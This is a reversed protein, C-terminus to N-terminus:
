ADPVGPLDEVSPVCPVGAIDQRTPHVAWLQGPFGLKRCQQIVRVAPEGGLVAVTRPSLLRSLDAM